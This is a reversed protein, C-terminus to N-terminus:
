MVNKRLTVSENKCKQKILKKSSPNGL